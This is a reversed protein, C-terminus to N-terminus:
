NVRKFNKKNKISEPITPKPVSNKDQYIIVMLHKSRDLEALPKCSIQAGSNDMSREIKTIIAVPFGPPYTGDIGSTTLYDGVDLDGFNSVFRLELPMARGIGFLVGRQSNRSVMVPITADREDLLAVESADDFVRVIQGLIGADNAVPMGLSIGDNKGRNIVIKQSSPNVPNYIIEAAVTQYTTQQQLQLLKRLNANESELGESNNSLLTLDRITKNQEAITKKLQSNIEISEGISTFLKKPQSLLIQVPYLVQHIAARITSTAQYRQDLVMLLLAIAILATARYIPAGTNFLAPPSRFM